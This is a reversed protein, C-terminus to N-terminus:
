RSMTTSTEPRIDPAGDRLLETVTCSGGRIEVDAVRWFDDDRGGRGGSLAVPGVTARPETTSGGCYIRVTVQRATGSYAEVGVRYTGNEPEDININEPGFGDTDDIDLSPNDDAGPDGWELRGGTCNAYYCDDDNYWRRAGPNLLHTDMDTGDSDWFMEIRLGETAAAIVRTQCTATMRDDDTVTLELLYVGVIDPTFTTTPRNAPDPRRAASGDPREVRRWAWSVIEGDDEATGTIEVSTLPPTEVEPPCM